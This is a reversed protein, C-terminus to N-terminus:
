PKGSAQEKAARPMWTAMMAAMVPLGMVDLRKGAEGDQYTQMAQEMADGLQDANMSLLSRMQNALLREYRSEASGQEAYRSYLLYVPKDSLRAASLKSADIAPLTQISSSSEPAKANVYLHSERFSTTRRVDSALTNTYTQTIEISEPLYVRRWEVDRLPQVLAKLAAEVSEAESVTQPLTGVNMSSELLIQVDFQKSLRGALESLKPRYNHAADAKPGRPNSAGSGYRSMVQMGDRMMDQRQGPSAQTWVKMGADSIPRLATELTSKDSAQLVRVWAAM